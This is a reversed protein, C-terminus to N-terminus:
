RNCCKIKNILCQAMEFYIKTAYVDSMLLVFLCFVHRTFINSVFSAIYINTIISLDFSNGKGEELFM